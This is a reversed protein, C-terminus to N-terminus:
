GEGAASGVPPRAGPAIFRRARPALDGASAMSEEAARTAAVTLRQTCLAEAYPARIRDEGGSAAVLFDRLEERFPDGRAPTTPRGRGIDSMLEFESLELVQGDSVLHLAIRHPWRPLHTSSVSGIAGSAFRLTVISADAVDAGDPRERGPAWRSIASVVEAEGVLLRALDFIHTTQEVMQGGSQEQRVWWDRPPTADWWYGLVLQAPNQDLLEAARETVDLYRWHYGVATVLKTRTVGAAISEATQLDTAIPKETFFPIGLDIAAKEPEGHAYPPVCILLAEPRLDALMARWDSFARAGAVLRSLSEAAGEVPDAVGVLRAGPMWALSAAHRRAIGGAGIIAVRLPIM